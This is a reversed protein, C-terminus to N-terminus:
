EVNPMMKTIELADDLVNRKISPAPKVPRHLNKLEHQLCEQTKSYFIKMKIVPQKLNEDCRPWRDVSQSVWEFKSTGSNWIKSQGFEHM